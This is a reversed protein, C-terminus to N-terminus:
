PLVYHFALWEDKEANYSTGFWIGKSEAKGPFAKVVKITGASPSMWHGPNQILSNNSLTVENTEENVTFTGSTIVGNQNRTYNQGNMRDFLIWSNAAAADWDANWGWDRSDNASKTWGKGEAIWDVPNGKGDLLWMRGSSAAGALMNLLEGPKFSPDFGEDPGTEVPTWNKSYEESIFNYVLLALGEGDVDKDRYVGLRLSNEDLAIIEYRSWDSVGRIGNKEPKYGRLITGGNITLKKNAIDLIFTGNEKVGGEMLKENKFFPGGILNFSMSGYDGQTMVGPYVDAPGPSWWVTEFNAPDLFTIPGDFLKAETDLLWKKEKGPGGTLATWEPDTVYSFNDKSVKIAVPDLEVLRGGSLVSFKITYDGQFAFRITDQMKTSRGTGYDWIPIVAPTENILIVTNGGEDLSLDQVVRFKIASKDLPEGMEYEEKKCSAVILLVPMLLTMFVKIFREM